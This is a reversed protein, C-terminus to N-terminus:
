KSPTNPGSDGTVGAQLAQKADKLNIFGYATGVAAFILLVTLVITDSVGNQKYCIPAIAVLMLVIVTLIFKRSLFKSDDDM